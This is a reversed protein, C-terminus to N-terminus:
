VCNPPLGNRVGPEIRECMDAVSGAEKPIRPDVLGGHSEGGSSASDRVTGAFSRRRDSSWWSGVGISRGRSCLPRSGPLMM